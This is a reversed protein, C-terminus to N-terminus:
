YSTKTDSRHGMPGPQQSLRCSIAVDTRGNNFDEDTIRQESRYPVEPENLTYNESFHKKIALQQILTPTWALALVDIKALPYRDLIANIIACATSGTTVVDDIILVKRHNLDIFGDKIEYVGSLEKRRQQIGLNKVPRTIKNKVIMQPQYHCGFVYAISNGVRDLGSPSKTDTFLEASKLARIVIMDKAMQHYRLNELARFVCTRVAAEKCKKFDIILKRDNNTVDVASFYYGLHYLRFFRSQSYRLTRQMLEMVIVIQWDVKCASSGYQPSLAVGFEADWSSAPSIPTFLNFYLPILLWKVTSNL